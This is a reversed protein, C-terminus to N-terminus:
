KIISCLTGLSFSPLEITTTMVAEMKQLARAGVAAYEGCGTGNIEPMVINVIPIM